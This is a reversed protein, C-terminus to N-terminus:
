KFFEMHKSWKKLISEGKFYLDHETCLHYQSNVTENWFKTAIFEGMAMTDSGAFIFYTTCQVAVGIDAQSPATRKKISQNFLLELRGSKYIKDEM